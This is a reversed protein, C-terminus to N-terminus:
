ENNDNKRKRTSIVEHGQITTSKYITDVKAETKTDASEERNKDADIGLGVAKSFDRIKAGGIWGTEKALKRIVSGGNGSNTTALNLDNTELIVESGGKANNLPLTNSGDVDPISELITIGTGEHTNGLDHFDSPDSSRGFFEGVANAMDGVANAMEKFPQAVDNIMEATAIYLAEIEKNLQQETSRVSQLGHLDISNIPMNEAYNFTSVWTFQDAIPDVGTFRGIAPDFMRAGYHYWDMGFDNDIEKGNYQYQNTGASWDGEMNMGFPYYHNEQLIETGDVAEDGNLDSFM